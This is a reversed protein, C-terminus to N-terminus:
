LYSKNMTRLTLVRVVRLVYIKMVNNMTFQQMVLVVFVVLPLSFWFFVNVSAKVCGNFLFPM